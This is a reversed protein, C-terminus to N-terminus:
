SARRKAQRHVFSTAAEESILWLCFTVSRNVIKGFSTWDQTKLGLPQRCTLILRQSREPSDSRRKEWKWVKDVHLRKGKIQWLGFPSCGRTQSESITERVVALRQRFTQKDRRWVGTSYQYKLCIADQRAKFVNEINTKCCRNVSM